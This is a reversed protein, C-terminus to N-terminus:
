IPLGRQSVLYEAMQGVLGSHESLVPNSRSILMELVKKLERRKRANSEDILAAMRLPAKRRVKAAHPACFAGRTKLWIQIRNQHEPSTLDALVSNEQQRLRSCIWCEASAMRSAPDLSDLFPLLVEAASASDRVAAVGWGHFNCLASGPDTEDQMLAAQSNRLFACM